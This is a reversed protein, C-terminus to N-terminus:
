QKQTSMSLVTRIVGGWGDDTKTSSDKIEKKIIKGALVAEMLAALEEPKFPDFFYANEYGDLVERSFATDSALVIGGAQRAEALPYGFTEIYSPFILTACRYWKWVDEYPLRGTCTICGSSKEQPLTLTIRHPINKSKLLASADRICGNNKYIADATPYFFSAADFTNDSLDATEGRVTPLSTLVKDEPLHCLRCVAEKMWKTQVIICDCKRASLKIVKGILHQIVALKRESAKLFSFRKVSQFPISQHVYVIQPVKLGFTMINQLSFVVDPSLRRIYHKGTVFDFLLKKFKSKKIEPLVKIKVNDTEEFYRDNLLFIWENEKDLQCVASYFDRLITMAGGKNAAIDNVVIRM